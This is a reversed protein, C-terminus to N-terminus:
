RGTRLLSLSDDISRFLEHDAKISYLCDILYEKSPLKNDSFGTPMGSEQILYSNLQQKNVLRKLSGTYHQFKEQSITFVENRAVLYLWDTTVDRSCTIPPLVIKKEKELYEKLAGNSKFSRKCGKINVYKM